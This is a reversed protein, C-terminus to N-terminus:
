FPLKFTCMSRATESEMSFPLKQSYHGGRSHSLARQQINQTTQISWRAACVDEVTSGHMFHVVVLKGFHPILCDPKNKLRKMQQRSHSSPFVNDEWEKIPIKFPVHLFSAIRIRAVRPRSSRTSWRGRSNDPPWCCLTAMALASILEGRIMRASSGVPFRSEEDPSSTM